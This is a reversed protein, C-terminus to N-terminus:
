RHRRFYTCLLLRRKPLMVSRRSRIGTSITKVSSSWTSSSLEPAYRNGTNHALMNANVDNSRMLARARKFFNRGSEHRPVACIGATEKVNFRMPSSIGDFYVGNTGMGLLHNVAFIEYDTFEPVHNVSVTIDKCPITHLDARNIGMAKALSEVDTFRQADAPINM